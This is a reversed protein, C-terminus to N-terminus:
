KHKHVGTFASAVRARAQDGGSVPATVGTAAVVPTPTPAGPDVCAVQSGEIACAEGFLACNTKTVRRPGEGPETCRVAVAGSCSGTEPIGKCPDVWKAAKNLFTLVEPGFTAYVAGRDCVMASSSIGGSTVGYSVLQGTANPRVLPSGSDGYCPQADGAVGGIYAEYGDLLVTSDYVQQAYELNWDYYGSSTSSGGGSGGVGGSGSSSSAGSSGISSSPIGSNSSSSSSSSIRGSSSSSGISSSAIGSSSSSSGISSSTIGSSSSTVSSSSSPSGGSSSSSSGTSGGSFWEYFSDFGGFMMEFVKGHLGRLEATGARRTGYIGQNNQVGYGIIGFSKDIDRDKLTGLTLPKITTVETALHLVGVDRGYGVFGGVDGPARESEVVRIIQKPASANSGIGFAVEGYWGGEFIAVCHKATAVTAKGILTATCFPEFQEVTVIGGDSAAGGGAGGPGDYYSYRYVIGLSGIADLAAGDAAVGGIIPAEASATDPDRDPATGCGAGLAVAAVMPTGFLLGLRNMTRM